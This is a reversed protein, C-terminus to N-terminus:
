EPYIRGGTVLGRGDREFTFRYAVAKEQSEMVQVVPAPIDPFAIKAAEVTVNPQIAIEHKMEALSQLVPLVAQLTENTGDIGKLVLSNQDVIGSMVLQFAKYEALSIEVTEEDTSRYQNM